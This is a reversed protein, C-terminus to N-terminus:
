KERSLLSNTEPENVRELLSPNIELEEIAEKVEPSVSQPNIKNLSEQKIKQLANTGQAYIELKEDPDGEEEIEEDKSELVYDINAKEALAMMMYMTPEFMLTMMDPNWKGELFGSYLVISTLDIIGVKNKISTLLNTITNEDILTEFIYYMTDNPNTFEPPREWGYAQNPSNTLSQGPIARGADLSNQLFEIQKESIAM